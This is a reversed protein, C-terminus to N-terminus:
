LQRWHVSNTRKYIPSWILMWRPGRRAMSLVRSLVSSAIASIWATSFKSSVTLHQLRATGRGEPDWQYARIMEDRSLHLGATRLFVERDNAGPYRSRVGAESMARALEILEFITALREGDSQSRLLNVWVRMVEPDTDSYPRPHQM